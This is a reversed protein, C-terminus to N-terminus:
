FIANLLDLFKTQYTYLLYLTLISLSPFIVGNEMFSNSQIRLFQFPPFGFKYKLPWLLPVGAKTFMDMVIHSVAGIMFSYWVMRMDILVITSLIKLVFDLLFGILWIGILSHSIHRHGGLLSVFIKAAVPGFRFNDWLDSTPQDIDPFLGGIFNASFAVIATPVSMPPLTPLWIIVGVLSTFAALDHTKGTM